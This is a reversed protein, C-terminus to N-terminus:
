DGKGFLEGQDPGTDTKAGGVSDPHGAPETSAAAAPDSASTSLPADHASSGGRAGTNHAAVAAADAQDSGAAPQDASSGANRSVPYGPANEGKQQALKVGVETPQGTAVALKSEPREDVFGAIQRSIEKFSCLPAGRTPLPRKGGQLDKVLGLASETTQNDFFEYNVTVVPAYDCAALCEAHELTISGAEDPNGATQNMGVGLTDSLARYIDDGGLLGCLTNTCVSVLYEGTPKRKYMTYFTAVAAVQAKTLDLVDACFAIGDASVYGQESQVLHLMPLLASRSQGAPYRTIMELAAARVEAAFVDPNGPREIDILSLRSNSSTVTASWAREAARENREQEGATATISM